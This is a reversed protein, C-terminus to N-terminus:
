KLIGYWVFLKYLLLQEQINKLRLSGNLIAAEAGIEPNSLELKLAFHSIFIEMTPFIKSTEFNINNPGSHPVTLM